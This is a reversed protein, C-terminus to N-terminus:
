FISDAVNSNLLNIKFILTDQFAVAFLNTCGNRPTSFSLRYCYCYKLALKKFYFIFIPKKKCIHLFCDQYILCLFPNMLFPSSVSRIQAVPIIHLENVSIIVFQKWKKKWAKWGSQSSSSPM